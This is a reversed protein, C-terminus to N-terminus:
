NFKEKLRVVIEPKKIKPSPEEGLFRSMEDKTVRSYVQECYRDFSYESNKGFMGWM